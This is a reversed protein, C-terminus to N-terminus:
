AQNATQGYSQVGGGDFFSQQHAERNKRSQMILKHFFEKGKFQVVDRPIVYEGENLRAPVDDVQKGNSPSLAQSVFGGTTPDVPGGRAYLTPSGIPAGSVPGSPNFESTTTGVVGGGAYGHHRRRGGLEAALMQAAGLETQMGLRQGFRGTISADSYAGSAAAEREGPSELTPQGTTPDLPQTYRGGAYGIDGPHEWPRWGSRTGGYLEPYQRVDPTQQHINGPEKGWWGMRPPVQQRYTRDYDTDGAPVAATGRDGGRGGGGGGYVGYAGDGTAAGLYLPDNRRDEINKGGIDAYVDPLRDIAGDVEGGEQYGNQSGGQQDSEGDDTEPVGAKRRIERAIPDDMVMGGRAFGNEGGDPHEVHDHGIYGGRRVMVGVNRMVNQPQQQQSSTRSVNEGFSQGTSFGSSTGSSGGTSTGTSTSTQGLPSYKLQMGTGYLANLANAASYGIQTNQLGASMAQNQMTLGQAIDAMRQQNGAGAAAAATQVRSAQDLAAYRGASPDIGYSQLDQLASQRAQEGAQQVGAEAQGMMTAIHQPSAWLQGARMLNDINGQNREYADMGWRYVQPAYNEAEQAIRELIPTQSYEPIFSESHANNLATNFANQQSQNQAQQQSLNLGFSSSTSEATPVLAGGWEPM